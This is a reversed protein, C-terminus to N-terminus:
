HPQNAPPPPAIAATLHAFLGPADPILFHGTIPHRSAPLVGSAIRVDLWRRPVGLRAALGATTWQGDIQARRRFQERLSVLGHDRRLKGVM